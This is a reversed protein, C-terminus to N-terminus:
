LGAEPRHPTIQNARKWFMKEDGRMLMLHAIVDDTPCMAGAWTDAYYGIPHLCLCCLIKMEPEGHPADKFRFKSASKLAVTPRLRRFVYSVGSRESTEIFMGTLLYYKFQHHPLLEALTKLANSESEISWAVSCGMTSLDQAIHHIGPVMGWKTAGDEQYIVIDCRKDHSYWMNVIKYDGKQERKLHKAAEAAYVDAAPHRPELILQEGPIPMPLGCFEPREAHTAIVDLADRVDSFKDV